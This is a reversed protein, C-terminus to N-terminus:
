TGGPVASAVGFRDLLMTKGGCPGGMVGCSRKADIYGVFTWTWAELWASAPLSPPPQLSCSSLAAADQCHVVSRTSSLRCIAEQFWLYSLVYYVWLVSSNLSIKFSCERSSKLTVKAEECEDGAM